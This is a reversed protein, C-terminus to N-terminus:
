KGIKVYLFRKCDLCTWQKVQQWKQILGYNNTNEFKELYRKRSKVNEDSLPVIRQTNNGQGRAKAM